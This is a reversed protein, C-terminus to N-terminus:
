CPVATAPNAEACRAKPVWIAIQRIPLDTGSRGAVINLGRWWPAPYALFLRVAACGVVSRILAGLRRDGRLPDWRVLELARRPLAPIVRVARM